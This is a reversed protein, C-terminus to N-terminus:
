TASSILGSAGNPSAGSGTAASSATATGSASLRSCAVGPVAQLVTFYSRAAATGAADDAEIIMNTIVHKTRPTGDDYVILMDGFMKEIARDGPAPGVPVLAPTSAPM